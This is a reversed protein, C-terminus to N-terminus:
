LRQLYTRTEWDTVVSRYEHAEQRKYALYTAHFEPGFVDKAVEDAEFADLADDLSAPLALDGYTALEEETLKYTDRNIPEGADLQRKIGDLGAALVMAIGLHYNVASDATRVELCHRNVPMRCMLTRNNEGWARHVPAWSMEDMFGKSTFRKYSNVTPCIVANIAGAHALVGAVFHRSLDSYARTGDGAAFANEGTLLDALSINIHAASGFDDQFPKPMFTAICGQERAVHKAMLRFLVMQDAMTLADTYDFNFEYQGDGGEHDFSYVGWGLSNMHAVMPGLFPEALMTAELDYGRTKAHLRDSPVLPEWGDATERVVYFEPEIGVNATFGAAAAADVQRVLANRADQEYPVGDLHLRTPVLAFRKDWPLVVLRDLDPMGACEDEHPGLDGMGELAGVTYLESGKAMSPLSAVPVCKSKPVGHIDTYWGFVYQVGQEILQDRLEHAQTM